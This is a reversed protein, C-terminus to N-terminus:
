GKRKGTISIRSPFRDVYAKLAQGRKHLQGMETAVADREVTTKTIIQQHLANLEEVLKKLESRQDESLGYSPKDKEYRQYWQEFRDLYVTVTQVFAEFNGRAEEALSNRAASILERVEDLLGM